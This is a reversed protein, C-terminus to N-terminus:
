QEGPSGEAKKMEKKDRKRAASKEPYLVKGDPAVKVLAPKNDAKVLYFEYHDAEKKVEPGVKVAEVGRLSAGPYTREVAELVVKPLEKALVDTQVQVVTGDVKFTAGITHRQHRMKLAFVPPKGDETEESAAKIQAGPFKARASAMVAKPVRRLPIQEEQARAGSALGLVALFGAVTMFRMGHKTRMMTAGNIREHRMPTLTLPGEVDHTAQAPM